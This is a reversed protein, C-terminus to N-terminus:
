NIVNELLKVKNNDYWWTDIGLDYKPNIKPKGFKDWYAIRFNQIHWHPVVYYGFLLVRDLSKTASILDKRNKAAIIKDILFDVAKNSVGAYNRSGKIEASSSNWFDKQENGPSLSQGLSVVTMDFSFNELRREYQASDVTRVKVDIGIKKLNRAYPLAIREFEPSVLLITFKLPIGTIENVRKGDKVIWGAKYLLKDAIKLNERIEGSGNNIPNKYIENFIEKPLKNKFLELLKLEEQSPLGYSALDSNSFFSSTRSYQDFFLIKNTWEFDFAYNLAKRVIRDKFIEKRTNIFFGQMGTPIEHKVSEKKVYGNKIASFNYANAWRKAQNEQRFDYDGSKFAELAVTADRFYEIIIEKFNFKGKNVALDKGWYNDVKEFEITRGAKFNKVRYPGSGIPSELLVNNFKDKWYKESLIKMQGIILPLELNREGQFIFKVEHDSKKEAKKVNGYYFKFFPHGKDKLTNLTWIVDEVRIPNGDHFKAEKRIRFIAWSRDEPVTISEAILGYMTFPEDFSQTLLSDHVQSLNVAPSGKLIFNNLTDFSGIQHLKIKGGKKANINVYDFNTFDKNYKPNGHMSIAHSEDLKEISYSNSSFIFFIFILLIKM